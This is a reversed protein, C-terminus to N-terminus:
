QDWIGWGKDRMGEKNAYDTIRNRKGTVADAVVRAATQSQREGHVNRCRMESGSVEYLDFRQVIQRIKILVCFGCSRYYVDLFCGKEQSTKRRLTTNKYMVFRRSLASLLPYVSIFFVRATRKTASAAARENVPHEFFAAAFDDSLTPMTVSEPVM